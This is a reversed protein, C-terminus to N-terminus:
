PQRCLTTQARTLLSDLVLQLLVGAYVTLMPFSLSLAAVAGIMLLATAARLFIMGLLADGTCEMGLTLLGVVFSAIGLQQAAIGVVKALNAASGELFASYTDFKFGAVFVFKDLWQWFGGNFEGRL